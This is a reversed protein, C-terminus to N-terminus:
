NSQLHQKCYANGLPQKKDWFLKGCEPNACNRRGQIALYNYLTKKSKIDALKMVEKISLNKEKDRYYSEALIAKEKNKKSLGRKRGIKVGRRKAAELGATTREAIIDRELQAMASFMNFIFKGTASKTDFFTEKISVFAINQKEFETILQSLHSISRAVRDLKWVVFTDGERLKKILKDLEPREKVSGSIKDAFINNPKIGYELLADVQLDLKQSQTSVRAYGFVM